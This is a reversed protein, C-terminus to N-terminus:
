TQNKLVAGTCSNQLCYTKYKMHGAADSYQPSMVNKLVGYKQKSKTTHVANAILPWKCCLFQM